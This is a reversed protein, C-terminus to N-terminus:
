LCAISQRALAQFSCLASTGCVWLRPSPSSLMRGEGHEQVLSVLSRLSDGEPQGSFVMVDRWTRFGLLEPVHATGGQKIRQLRRNPMLFSYVM